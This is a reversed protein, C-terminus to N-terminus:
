CGSSYKEVILDLKGLFVEKPTGAAGDDTIDKPNLPLRRGGIIGNGAIAETRGVAAGIDALPM